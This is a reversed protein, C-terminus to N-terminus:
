VCQIAILLVTAVSFHRKYQDFMAEISIGLLEVVLILNGNDLTEQVLEPIGVSKCHVEERSTRTYKPRM